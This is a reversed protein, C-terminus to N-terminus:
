VYLFDHKIESEYLITVIYCKGFEIVPAPPCHLWRSIPVKRPVTPLLRYNKYNVFPPM